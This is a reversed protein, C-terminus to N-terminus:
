EFRRVASWKGDIKDLVFIWKATKIKLEVFTEEIEVTEKTKTVQDIM